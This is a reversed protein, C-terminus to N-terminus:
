KLINEAKYCKELEILAKKFLKIRHLRDRYGLYNVRSNIEQKFNIITCDDRYRKEILKEKNM